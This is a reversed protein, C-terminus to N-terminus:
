HIAYHVGKLVQNDPSSREGSLPPKGTTECPNGAESREEPYGISRGSVAERSDARAGDRLLLDRVAKAITESEHQSRGCILIKM